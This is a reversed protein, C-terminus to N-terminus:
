EGHQRGARRTTFSGGDRVPEVTYVIPAATDGPRLFYAHLSHV